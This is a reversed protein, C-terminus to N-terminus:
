TCAAVVCAYDKVKCMNFTGNGPDIPCAWKPLSPWGDGKCDQSEDNPNEGNKCCNYAAYALHKTTIGNGYKYGKSQIAELKQKYLAIGKQINERPDLICTGDTIQMLGCGGDDGKANPNGHSERSIIAIIVNSYGELGAKKLEDDIISGYDKKIKEREAAPLSCANTGCVAGGQQVHKKYADPNQCMLGGGGGGGGGGGTATGALSTTDCTFGFGTKSAVLGPVKATLVRLTTNVILWAALMIAFGALAAVLGGKATKMLGENGTSVIYLIAMAVIVALAVYTMVKLGWDIVKNGGIVLHCITCPKTEDINATAPDDESRGCPVIAANAPSPFSISVFFSFLFLSLFFLRM